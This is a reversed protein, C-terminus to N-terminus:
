SAGLYKAILLVPKSITDKNGRKVSGRNKGRTGSGKIKKILYGVNYNNSSYYM